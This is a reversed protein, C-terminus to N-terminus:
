IGYSDDRKRDQIADLRLITSKAQSSEEDWLCQKMSLHFRLHSDGRPEDGMVVICHGKTWVTDM